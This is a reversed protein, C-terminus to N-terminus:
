ISYYLVLGGHHVMQGECRKKYHHETTVWRNFNVKWLSRCCWGHYSTVTLYFICVSMWPNEKRFISHIILFPLEIKSWPNDSLFITASVCDEYAQNRTPIFKCGRFTKGYVSFPFNEEFVLHYFGKINEFCWLNGGHHIRSSGEGFLSPKKKAQM